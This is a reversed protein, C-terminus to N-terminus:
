VLEEDRAGGPRRLWGLGLHAAEGAKRDRV